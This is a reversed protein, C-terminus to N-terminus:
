NLLCRVSLNNYRDWFDGLDISDSFFFPGFAVPSGDPHHSASWVIGGIGQGTWNSGNRNGALVGRFPGDFRFNQYASNDNATAMATSLAAFEGSSDGTPIRWNAPCIDQTADNPMTAASVCTTVQGATAACWNYYYGTFNPSNIDTEESNPISLSFGSQGDVYAYLRPTDYDLSSITNDIRPLTWNSAINTDAPTLDITTDLSGLKLNNLMWVNGDALKGICYQQGDGRADTAIGTDGISWGDTTTGANLIDGIDGKFAPGNVCAAYVPEPIDAGVVSYTIRNAYTGAAQSTNIAVAYYFDFEDLPTVTQNTQYIQTDTTPLNAYKSTAPTSAYDTSNDFGNLPSAAALTSNPSTIAFGWNNPTLAAPATVAAATMPIAPIPNKSTADTYLLANTPSGSSYNPNSSSVRALLEYGPRNTSISLTQCTSSFGASPAVDPIELNTKDEQIPDCNVIELKLAPEIAVVVDVTEPNDAQAFDALAFLVALLTVVVFAGVWLNRILNPIVLHNDNRM